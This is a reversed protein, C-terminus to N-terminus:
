NAVKIKNMYRGRELKLPSPRGPHTIHDPASYCQSGLVCLQLPNSLANKGGNGLAPFQSTDAEIQRGPCEVM